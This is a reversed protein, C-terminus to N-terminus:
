TETRTTVDGRIDRGAKVAGPGLRDGTGRPAEAAPGVTETRVAGHIDRDAKVAGAALRDGTNREGTTRMALWATVIASAVVVTGAAVFWGWGGHLQNILAGSVGALVVTAASGIGVRWRRLV